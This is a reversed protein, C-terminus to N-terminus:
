QPVGAQPSLPAEDGPSPTELAALPEPVVPPDASHDLFRQTATDEDCGIVIALQRWNGRSLQIRRLSGAEYGILIAVVVMMLTLASSSMGLRGLGWIMGLFIVFGFLALWLRHWLLWLPAFVMAWFHFGDRVLVIEDSLSSREPSAPAHVTYVPM